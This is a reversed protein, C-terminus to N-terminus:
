VLCVRSILRKGKGKKTEESKGRLVKILLVNWKVKSLSSLHANHPQYLMVRLLKLGGTGRLM